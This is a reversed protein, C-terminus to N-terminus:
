TTRGERGREVLARTRDCMVDFLELLEPTRAAVAARQRAVVDVDGRVIPGTIADEGGLEAWNDLAAQVLPVLISREAGTTAMLTAAADELTVLFNSAMSAAAHYAPRDADAIEVARMGLLTALLRALALARPTSGAVAAACGDFTAGDHTVTMLPHLAFAEHPALIDLGWAGACHGVLPGPDVASAANGIERDPVALVVVDYGAGDFGRGFPGQAGPIAAVLARGMRGAGVVAMRADSTALVDAHDDM